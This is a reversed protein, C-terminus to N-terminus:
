LLHATSRCRQPVALLAGAADKTDEFTMSSFSIPRRLQRPTIRGADAAGARKSSSSPEANGNPNQSLRKLKLAATLANTTLDIKAMSWHPEVDRVHMALLGRCTPCVIAAIEAEHHQIYAPM